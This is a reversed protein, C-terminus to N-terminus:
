KRRGMQTSEIHRLYAKDTVNVEKLVVNYSTLQMNLETHDALNLDQSEFNYGMYLYKLKVNGEPVTISYFGYTNSITFAQTAEEQIIVGSLREGTEKDSVYGSITHKKLSGKRTQFIIQKGVVKYVINSGTLLQDLVERLPKDTAKITVRKPLSVLDDSYSFGIGTEASIKQLIEKVSLDHIDISIHTDLIKDNNEVVANLTLAQLFYILAFSRIYNRM